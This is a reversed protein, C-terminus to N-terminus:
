AWPWHHIYDYLHWQWVDIDYVLILVSNFKWRWCDVEACFCWYFIIEMRPVVSMEILIVIASTSFWLFRQPKRISLCLITQSFTFTSCNVNHSSVPKLNNFLFKTRKVLTVNVLHTYFTKSLVQSVTLTFQKWNHQM